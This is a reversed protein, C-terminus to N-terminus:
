RTCPGCSRSASTAAGPTPWTWRRAASWALAGPRGGGGGAARAMTKLAALVRDPAVAPATEAMLAFAETLLSDGALIATAEGFQKHSSPKGRRLDDDDMAPLDDHVLSYTHILEIACAFPMTKDRDLGFLGATTLCLAPRLRKGGALLSYEMAEVLARPIHRGKLCQRLFAEIELGLERLRAKVVEPRSAAQSAGSM